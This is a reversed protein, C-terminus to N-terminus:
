LRKLDIEIANIADQIESEADEEVEESKRIKSFAIEHRIKQYKM